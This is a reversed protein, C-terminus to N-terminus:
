LLGSLTRGQRQLTRNLVGVLKTGQIEFVVVQEGGQLVSPSSIAATSGGSSVIGGSGGSGGAAGIQKVGQSITSAFAKLAIGAGIAVFPNLSKLALNIALIGTGTQIAIDGLGSLISGFGALLTTGVSQVSLTGSALGAGIVSGLNGFTQAIDQTIIQGAQQNFLKLREITKEQEVIASDDVEPGDGLQFGSDAQAISAAESLDTRFNSITLETIQAELQKKLKDVDIEKAKDVKVKAPTLEIEEGDFQEQLGKKFGEAANENALQESKLKQLSGVLGDVQADQEAIVDNLEQTTENYTNTAGALPALLRQNLQYRRALAELQILQDKLSAETDISQLVQNNDIASRLEANLQKRAEAQAAFADGLDEAGDKLTDEITGQLARIRAGRIIEQNVGDLAIQLKEYATTELDIGKLYEPYKQSLEDLASQRTEIDEGLDLIIRSLADIEGKSSAIEDFVGKFSDALKNTTGILSFIKDGFVTLLTVATSIGFVLGGAGTLSGLIAQFATKASGTRKQLNGFSSALQTINNGVGIIGFPADQIVRSVDTLAPLANAAGKELKDFGKGAREGVSGLNARDVKKAQKEIGQLAKISDRSVTRLQKNSAGIKIELDAREAM